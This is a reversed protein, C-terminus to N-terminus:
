KVTRQIVSCTNSRRKWIKIPASDLHMINRGGKIIWFISGLISQDMEEWPMCLHVGYAADSIRRKPSKMLELLYETDWERILARMGQIASVARRM